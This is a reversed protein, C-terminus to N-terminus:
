HAYSLSSKCLLVPLDTDFCHIRWGRHWESALERLLCSYYARNSNHLGSIEVTWYPPVGTRFPSHCLMLGTFPSKHKRVIENTLSSYLLNSCFQLYRVQPPCKWMQICKTRQSNWVTGAPCRCGPVCSRSPCPVSVDDKNDCTRQCVPVCDDFVAGGKCSVGEM